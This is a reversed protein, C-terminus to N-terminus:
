DRGSETPGSDLFEQCTGPSAQCSRSDRSASGATSTQFFFPAKGAVPLSRLSPRPALPHIGSPFPSLFRHSRPLPVLLSQVGWLVGPPRAPSKQCRPIGGPLSPRSVPPAPHPEM